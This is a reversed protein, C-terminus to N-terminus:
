DLDNRLMYYREIQHDERIVILYYIFIKQCKDTQFICLM